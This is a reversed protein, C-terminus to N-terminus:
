VETHQQHANQWVMITRAHGQPQKTKTYGVHRFGKRFTAGAVNHHLDDPLPVVALVDDITVTGREDAIRHAVQRAVRLWTTGKDEWAELAEDKLLQGLELSLQIESMGADEKNILTLTRTLGDEQSVYGMARLRRVNTSIASVSKITTGAVIDRYAPPYSHTERWRRVFRLIILQTPTPRAKPTDTTM